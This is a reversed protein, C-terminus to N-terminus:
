VSSNGFVKSLAVSVSSSPLRMLQRLNVYGGSWNVYRKFNQSVASRLHCHLPFSSLFTKLWSKLHHRHCTPYPKAHYSHCILTQTLYPNSKPFLPPSM